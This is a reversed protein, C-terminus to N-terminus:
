RIVRKDRDGGPCCGGEIALDFARAAEGSVKSYALHSLAYGIWRSELGASSTGRVDIWEEGGCKVTRVTFGSLGEVWAPAPTLGAVHIGTMSSLVAATGNAAYTAAYGIFDVGTERKVIIGHMKAIEIEPFPNETRRKCIGLSVSRGSEPLIVLNLEGKAGTVPVVEPRFGNKAVLLITPRGMPFRFVGDTKTRGGNWSGLEQVWVGALPDGAQTIVKGVGLSQACAAAPLTLLIILRPLSLGPLLM